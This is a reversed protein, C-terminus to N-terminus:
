RQVWSPNTSTADPTVLPLEGSFGKREGPVRYDVRFTKRANSLEGTKVNKLTSRESSLGAVFMSFERVDPEIAFVVIGVKANEEGQGIEGLVASTEVLQPDNLMKMLARTIESPVEQGSLVLHGSEDLLEWRPAIRRDKGSRNSITYTCYLFESDTVADHYLRM